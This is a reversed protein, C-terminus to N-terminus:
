EKEPGSFGAVSVPGNFGQFAMFSHEAVPKGGTVNLVLIHSHGGMGAGVIVKTSGTDQKRTAGVRIGGKFAPDFAYFSALAADSAGSFIAVHSSAGQGAGVVIDGFKDDDVFGGAVSIGGLFQPAYAYFSKIVSADTAKFVKVHPPAGRGPGTIIDDKGDGDVDVSGVTIGGTFSKDYAYFTLLVKGTAADFAMVHPPGSKAVAVIIDDKADGNIDGSAVELGGMFTPAFPSFVSLEKRTRGDLVQVHPSTGEGSAVIIDDFKDGNVDDSAVKVGGRFKPDFALFSARTTLTDFGGGGNPTAVLASVHPEAGFGAGVILGNKQLSQASAPTQHALGLCGAIVLSLLSASSLGSKM